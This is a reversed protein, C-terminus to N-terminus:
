SSHGFDQKHFPSQASPESNTLKPIKRINLLKRLYQANLPEVARLAAIIWVKNQQFDLGGKSSASINCQKMIYNGRNYVKASKEQLHIEINVIKPERVHLELTQLLKQLCFSVSSCSLFINKKSLTFIDKFLLFYVKLLRLFYVSAVSFTTKKQISLSKTISKTLPFIPVFGFLEFSHFCLEAM